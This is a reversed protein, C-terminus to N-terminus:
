RRHRFNGITDIGELGFQGKALRNGDEADVSAVETYGSAGALLLAARAPTVVLRVNLSKGARVGHSKTREVTKQGPRRDKSIVQEDNIEFIVGDQSGVYGVHVIFKCKNRLLGRDCPVAFDFTGVGPGDLMVRGSNPRDYWGSSGAKWGASTWAEIGREVSKPKAPTVERRTLTVEVVQDKGGAVTFPVDRPDYGSASGSVQYKGDRLTAVAGTLPIEKGDSGTLRVKTEPPNLRFTIKAEVPQFQITGVDIAVEAGAEFERTEEWPRFGPKRVRVPHGGPSVKVSLSGNPEVAQWSGGAVSVETGSGNRVVLTGTTPLERLPEKLTYTEGRKILVKQEEPYYGDKTIKVLYERPELGLALRNQSIKRPQRKRGDIEILADQHGIDLILSGLSRDTVVLALKPGAGMSFTQELRESGHMLSLTHQSQPLGELLLGGEGVEALATDNFGASVRERTSSPKLIRVTGNFSSVAVARLGSATLSLVEPLSNQKAYFTANVTGGNPAQVVITHQDNSLDNASFQGAEASLAQGDLSVKLGELGTVLEFGKSLPQLTKKWTSSSANLRTVEEVPQYGPSSARVVYEGMPLNERENTVDRGSKDHISVTADAPVVEIALRGFRPVETIPGSSRSRIVSIIPAAVLLAALIGALIGVQKPQLRKWLPVLSRPRKAPAADPSFVKTADSSQREHEKLRNQIEHVLSEFDTDGSYKTAIVQTQNFLTKLAAPDAENEARRTLEMARSMDLKRESQRNADEITRAIANRRQLLQANKPYASLAEDLLAIAKEAEGGDKLERARSLIEGVYEEQKKDLILTRLSKARANGPDLELVEQVPEEAARWDRDLKNRADTLLADLLASRVSANSPELQVAQRLLELAEEGSGDHSKAVADEVLRQAEITRQVGQQAARELALLESDGPFEALAASSLDAARVYDNVHLAQDIQEVWRNKADSREKQEKRKQVRDAEFDLGPYQAYIDRLIRWQDLAENYQGASEFTRAKAVIADVLDRKARISQLSRSFHPEEPHKAFADELIGIKRGLDPEAEVQRSVRAVFASVEQRQRDEADLRLSQFMANEPYKGLFDGCIALAASFNGADLHRRAEAYARNVVDHQSRVENYLKQYIAASEPSFTDPAQRDMELVREIKTLASSLEGKHMAQLAAQYVRDKEQRLRIYEQERRHIEAMLQQAKAEKPRLKLVNEIADRAHSFSYNELHQLAIRYWDGIQESSRKNEIEGQLTRAETNTSELSLVEQVKQLALQYEQGEFCRRATDLLQNITHRRGATDIEKRLPAIDSHLCAEAELESLIDSAIGLQGDEFAKRARQLRAEVRAPNFCEIPENRLAKQLNEAFERVSGFRQFPQKAMGKHIVQSLSPSIAPNFDSAPPPIRNVIADAIEDRGSSGEFPHRRTMAAFCVVAVAFQDSLPSPKKLLVQEPSMYLLTGKLGATSHADVLHAVGFDIIKVADDELIFLNSPKLDRHVLGVDHAAQLGRCVQSIIDVCRGVTLRQSSSSILKDLTVGRLLPMVFYPRKGGAEAIEGVDYIEVINPHAMGALVNVERKFLELSAKDQIDRVTKLTVERKLETDYARYVVGM